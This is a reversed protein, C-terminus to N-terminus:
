KHFELIALGNSVNVLHVKNFGAQEALAQYEEFTREKGNFNVMMVLDLLLGIRLEFESAANGQAAAFEWASKEALTKALCYWEKIQVVYEVDSWCSEDVTQELPRTPDLYM